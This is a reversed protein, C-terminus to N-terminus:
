YKLVFYGKYPEWKGNVKVEVLYFYTGAPIAKGGVRGNFSVQSNNYGRVDYLVQGNRDVIVVRNDPYQEIGDIQLVENIGDGNPSLAKHVSIPASGTVTITVTVPAAAEHNADGAQTATVRVLGIRHLTLSHGSLTAIRPADSSLSVPLGGVTSADLAVSGSSLAVTAPATFTITQPRKLVTLPQQAQPRSSYNANEPVTVTIVASGAGIITVVGASSVEAVSTNSSSYQLPEGSSSSATLNFPTDGYVKGAIPPFSLTRTGATVTLEGTLVLPEYNAATITATVTQSGTATRGNNQYSVSAGAPLSGAISLSKATGDYAFSQSPLTVGTIPANNVTLTGAVYVFTYNAAAGGSVTIPYSGSQSTGTATTAAVPVASLMASTEGAAFGSYSVTLAPNAAGFVRSKDDATVTLEAKAVVVNVSARFGGGNTVGQVHTFTGYLTYTGVGTGYSSRDWSVDQDGQSGDHYTVRVKGPLPLDGAATKYTVTIDPIPAVGRIDRSLYVTAQGSAHNGAADTVTLVVQQTMPEANTFTTKDLSLTVPGINDTSGDDVQDPTITVTGDNGLEVAIDKTRVVPATFDMTYVEGSTFAAVTNPTVGSPSTFDLRLTGDGTIGTVPVTWTTGSGAPTGITGATSGTTTLTFDGADVGTVPAAFTVTYSVMAANSPSASMRVISSVSTLTQQSGSPSAQVSAFEDVSKLRFYYVTGSSLGTVQHSTATGAIADYGPLVASFDAATSIELAYTVAGVVPTWSLTFGMETVASVSPTEPSLAYGLVVPDALTVTQFSQSTVDAEVYRETNDRTSQVLAKYAGGNTEQVFLLLNAADHSGLEASEYRVRVKGTFSYPSGLQYVRPLSSGEHIAVPTASLVLSNGSFGTNGSPVWSLQQSSWVTNAQVSLGSSGATIQTYGPVSLGLCAIAM